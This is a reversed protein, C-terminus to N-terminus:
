FYASQRILVNIMHDHICTNLDYAGTLLAVIEEALFDQANLFQQLLNAIVEM